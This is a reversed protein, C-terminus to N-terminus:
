VRGYKYIVWSIHSMDIVCSVPARMSGIAARIQVLGTADSCSVSLLLIVKRM